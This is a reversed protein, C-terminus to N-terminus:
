GDKRGWVAIAVMQGLHEYHYLAEAYRDVFEDYDEPVEGFVARILARAQATV